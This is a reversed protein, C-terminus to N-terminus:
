SDDLLGICAVGRQGVAGGFAPQAVLLRGFLVATPHGDEQRPKTIFASRFFPTMRFSAIKAIWEGSFYACPASVRAERSLTM